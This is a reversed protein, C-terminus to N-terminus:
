HRDGSFNLTIIESMAPHVRYLMLHYLKDTVQLRLRHNEGHVGTEEVMLVTRWSIVIINNIIADFMRVRDRNEYNAIVVTQRASYTTTCYYILSTIM